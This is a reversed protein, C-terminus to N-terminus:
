VLLDLIGKEKLWVRLTTVSTGRNRYYLLETGPVELHGGERHLGVVEFVDSLVPSGSSGAQTTTTYDVVDSDAYQVRSNEFSIMKPQGGPHQIIAVHDTEVSAQRALRLPKIDAAKLADVSAADLEFVTVDRDTIEGTRGVETFFLGDTKARAAVVPTGTGSANEEYRFWLDLSALSEKSPVVHNNTMVLHPAILFGTGTGRMDQIKCVAAGAEVALRVYHFPRLTNEGIIKEKYSQYDGTDSGRWTSVVLRPAPAPPLSKSALESALESSIRHLVAQKHADSVQDAVVNVFDLLYSKGTAYSGADLLGLVINSAVFEPADELGITFLVQDGKHKGILIGQLFKFRREVLRMEPLVTVIKILERLSEGTM